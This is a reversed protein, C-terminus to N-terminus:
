IKRVANSQDKYVFFIDSCSCSLNCYSKQSQRSSSKTQIAKNYILLISIVHTQFRIWNFAKSACQNPLTLGVRILLYRQNMDTFNM